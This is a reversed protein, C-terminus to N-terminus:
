LLQLDKINPQIPLQGDDLCYALLRQRYQDQKNEFGFGHIDAIAYRM